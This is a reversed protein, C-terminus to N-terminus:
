VSSSFKLLDNRYHLIGTVTTTLADCYSIQDHCLSQSGTL